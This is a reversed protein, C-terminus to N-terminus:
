FSCDRGSSPAAAATSCSTSAFPNVPRIRQAYLSCPLPSSCPPVTPVRGDWLGGGVLECDCLKYSLRHRKFPSCRLHSPLVVVFRGKKRYQSVCVHDPNLSSRSIVHAFSFMLSFLFFLLTPIKHGFCRHWFLQVKKKKRGTYSAYRLFLLREAQSDIFLDTHM